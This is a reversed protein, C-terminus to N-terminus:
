KEKAEKRDKVIKEYKEKIAKEDICRKFTTEEKCRLVIVVEPTRRSEFLLEHLPMSVTEEPLSTWNGDIVLARSSPLIAQMTLKENNAKDFDEPDEEIEADLEPLAGEEEVPPPPRFGRTLLRNRKRLEKDSKLTQLYNKALELNEIKYKACMKAIQTTAGAGKQGIIMIKPQPPM